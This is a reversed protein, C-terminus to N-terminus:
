THFLESFKEPANDSATSIAPNYTQFLIFHVFSCTTYLWKISLHQISRLSCSRLLVERAFSDPLQSHLGSM